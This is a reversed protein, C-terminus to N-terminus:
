NVSHHELTPNHREPPHTETWVITSWHPFTANPLLTWAGYMEDWTEQQIRINKRHHCEHGKRCTCPLRTFPRLPFVSHNTSIRQSDMTFIYQILRTTLTHQIIQNTQTQRHKNFCLLLSINLNLLLSDNNYRTM